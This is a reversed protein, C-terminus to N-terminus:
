PTAAGDDRRAKDVAPFTVDGLTVTRPGSPEWLKLTCPCGLQAAERATGVVVAGAGGAAIPAEQWAALAVEEGASDVLVAGALTWPEAGPNSLRLRVAVSAPRAEGTRTYSYSWARDWGLANAPHQKLEGDLPLSALSGAVELWAAGMLGGPGERAALLRAKDEQCQRAEAQAEDREKKLVEPPRPQRFVEVRRTGKAAHGVLWFSTSAPAAGDAFRVTAKVREGPLYDARPTAYLSLGDQGLAWHALREGRQFEVAGVAVRSDFVFTTTEDASACVDPAGEPAGTALDFRATAACRPVPPPEAAQAAGSLLAIVLLAGPSSPLM